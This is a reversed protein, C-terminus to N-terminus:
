VPTLYLLKSPNKEIDKKFFKAEKKPLQNIRNRFMTGIDINTVKSPTFNKWATM